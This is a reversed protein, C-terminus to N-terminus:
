GKGWPALTPGEPRPRHAPTRLGALHQGDRTSSRPAPMKRSLARLDRYGRRAQGASDVDGVAGLVAPGGRRINEAVEEPTLGGPSASATPYMLRAFHRGVETQPDVPDGRHLARCEEGITRADTLRPAKRFKEVEDCLALVDPDARRGSDEGCGPCCGAANLRGACWQCPHGVPSGYRKRIEDIDVM